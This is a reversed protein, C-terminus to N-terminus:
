TPRDDDRALGERAKRRARHLLSDVARESRGVARSMESVTLGDVCHLILVEMEADSLIEALRAVARRADLRDAAESAVDEATASRLSDLSVQASLPVSRRRRQTRRELGIRRRAIGYVWAALTARRPDFQRINRVADTLTQVMVDEALAQDDGLRSAAFGHLAPGFRDCLEGYATADGRRLREVLEVDADAIAARQARTAEGEM